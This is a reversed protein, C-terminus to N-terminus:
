PIAGGLHSLVWRIRPFREAVGSLVLKEAALTTDFLFGLSADAM